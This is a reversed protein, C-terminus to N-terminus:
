YYRGVQVKEMEQTLDFCKQNQVAMTVNKLLLNRMCPKKCAKQLSFVSPRLNVNCHTTVGSNSMSSAELKKWISAAKYWGTKTLM